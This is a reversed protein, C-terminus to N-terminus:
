TCMRRIGKYRWLWWAHESGPSSGHKPQSVDYRLPFMLIWRQAAVDSIDDLENQLTDTSWIGNCTKETLHLTSVFRIRTCRSRKLSGDGDESQATRKKPKPPFHCIFDPQNKTSIHKVPLMWAVCGRGVSSDVTKYDESPNLQLLTKLFVCRLQLPWSDANIRDAFPCCVKNKVWRSMSCAWIKGM